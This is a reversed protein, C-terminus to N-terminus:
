REGGTDAEAAMLAGFRSVTEGLVEAFDALRGPGLHGFLADALTAHGEVLSAVTSTGLDTLTVLAARRDGPHPERTVHGSAVLGDVLGTVNRPTVGLSSALAQQTSPGSEGVVWLLHTRATTLGQEKEFRALDAQVLTALELLHDLASTTTMDHIYKM